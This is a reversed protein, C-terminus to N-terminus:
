GGELLEWRAYAAQLEADIAAARASASAIEPGPKQYFTPEAMQAHMRGQEGELREILAPLGELEKQERFTLRRPRVAVIPASQASSAAVPSSSAGGKAKEFTTPNSQSSQRLWDDYGGAFEKVNGEGGFVLTSTVVNNLFERDHSVTILTGQYDVLLEELLELTEADLDNTPEDLVLVNAPKTFMRALLLRNREGGSLFRVLTKAREKSFLFDGLYGVIHRSKGNILVTDNGDAVNEAASKEEDLQARLQDFYAVQL